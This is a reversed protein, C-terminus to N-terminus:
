QFRAIEMKLREMLQTRIADRNTEAYLWEEYSRWFISTDGFLRDMENYGMLGAEHLAGFDMDLELSVLMLQHAELRTIPKDSFTTEM